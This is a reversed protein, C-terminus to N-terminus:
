AVGRAAAGPRDALAPITWFIALGAMACAASLGFGAVYGGTLDYLTGSAWSGIAAGAGMGLMVMGYVRGMAGPFNRAALVAM